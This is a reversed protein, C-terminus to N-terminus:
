KHRKREKKGKKKMKKMELANKDLNENKSFNEKRLRRAKM